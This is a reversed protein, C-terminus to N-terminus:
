YILKEGYAKKFLNEVVKMLEFFHAHLFSCRKMYNTMCRSPLLLSDIKHKQCSIKLHKMPTYQLIALQTTTLEKIENQDEIQNESDCDTKYDLLRVCLPELEPTVLIKKKINKEKRSIEFFTYTHLIQDFYIIRNM